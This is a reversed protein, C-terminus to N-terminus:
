QPALKMAAALRKSRSQESAYLATVENLSMASLSKNGTERSWKQYAASGVITSIHQHLKKVVAEPTAAHVFVGPWVTYDFGKLLKSEGAAPVDPLNVTRTPSAMAVAKLKGSEIMGQTTGALPLFAYDLQRGILDQVMPAVGKYPVDLLKIGTQARLDETILHPSSGIGWNGFSLEKPAAKAHAVLADIGSPPQPNGTVLVFESVILPHIPRLHESRYKASSLSLPNLVADNGTLVLLTTGNPPTALYAMTALSGGAGPANEVIVTQELAAQLPVQMQRAATDAPGGASYAVKLSISRASQSWSPLAPPSFLAALTQVASRRSLSNRNTM